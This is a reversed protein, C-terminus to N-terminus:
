AAKLWSPQVVFAESRIRQFEAIARALTDVFPEDGITSALQHQWESDSQGPLMANYGYHLDFSFGSERVSLDVRHVTRAKKKHAYNLSAALKTGAPTNLLTHLAKRIDSESQFGLHFVPAKPKYHRYPINFEGYASIGCERRWRDVADGFIEGFFVWRFRERLDALNRIPTVASFNCGSAMSLLEIVGARTRPDRYPRGSDLLARFLQFAQETSYPSPWFSDPRLFAELQVVTNRRTPQKRTM